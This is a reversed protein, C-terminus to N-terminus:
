PPDKFLARREQWDPLVLNMWAKFGAGHGRERLHVLEHVVVSELAEVPREALALNLTIAGTRTNCSGWRSSMRRYRIVGPVKGVIGAYHGLLDLAVPELQRRYFGDLAKRASDEDDLACSVYITGDVDQEASPRGVSRVVPYESGWLRVTAGDQLPPRAPPATRMRHHHTVVWERHQHVFSDVATRDVGPPASVLVRGEPGVVRMRLRKVDKVTVIYEVGEVTGSYTTGKRLMAVVTPRGASLVSGSANM